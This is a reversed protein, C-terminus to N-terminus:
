RSSRIAAAAAIERHVRVNEIMSTRCDAPAHDVLFELLRKAEALHAAGGTAQHLRWSARIRDEFHVRTGHEAVLAIATDVGDGTLRCREASAIVLAGRLTSARAVRIAEDLSRVADDARGQGALITGLQILASAEGEAFHLSRSVALSREFTAVAEDVRDLEWYVSALVSLATPEGFRLSIEACIQLARTEAAVAEDRRGLSLLISGLNALNLAENRRDGTERLVALSRDMHTRAEALLGLGHCDLAVGSTAAAENRRSGCSRALEIGREHFARADEYRCLCMLTDGLRGTAATEMPVDGLERTIALSQEGHVLSEDLRSAHYAIVSLAGLASAETRKSGCERAISLAYECHARAEDPRGFHHSLKGVLVAASAEGARDGAERFLSIARTVEDRADENRLSRWRCDGRATLMRALLIPDGAAEAIATAEDLLRLEEAPDRGLFSVSGARALLVEARRTGSLLGSVELASAALRDAAGVMGIRRLHERAADFYRLARARQAGDFFHRTLEVCLAGDIEEVRAAAAGTSQELAAAISAHYHERHVQSLGDHIVEQVQHHDFVYSRGASRVLRHSLELVCLRRLLFLTSIQLVQGVLLPDFEFGCCAAVHLIERDDDALKGVRAQILDRISAPSRLRDILKTAVWAGDLAQALLKCERLDRLIEFVFFPNGDSKEFVLPALDGALSASGLADSLLAAVHERTLRGLSLRSAHPLAAVEAAWSEDLRRRATGVLLVRDRDVALAMAAFLARGEDPALHLDEILVIVPRRRALSQTTRIFATQLADKTLPAHGPPPTEGRLLSGFAPALAAARDLHEALSADLDDEGFHDRFAVAFASNATAAGGPAYGGVLVDFDEGSERLLATFEDLLRSKGVGAEGDVLVVQGEGGRARSFLASLRAVDDMRGHLATERPVRIRRLSRRTSARIARSRESWWASREGQELVEALETANAFRADRDKELLCALVEEFFPSLQVNADGARRPREDVIARVVAAVEDADFPHRGTALEFLVVGLAHLDARGDLEPGGRRLQEPSAYRISGLFAGPLSLNEAAGSLRAVGLDMVKVVHTERHHVNGERERPQAGPREAVDRDATRCIMVNEPKVDRHVAGAAHIASLGNAIERGVHRCLEEPFRGLEALLERLTQGEVYEMVLFPREAGDVDATGFGLTRVVNDHVVRTGLEAERLFRQRLGAADLLHPHVLKLAVFEDTAADAAVRRAKYVTGMGGRGLVTEIVYGPIRPTEIRAEGSSRERSSAFLTDFKADLARVRLWRDRVEGVLEPSEFCVDEPTRGSEFADEVLRLVHEDSPDRGGQGRSSEPARTV